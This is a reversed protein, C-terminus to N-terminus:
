TEIVRALSELDTEELVAGTPNNPYNLIVAKTKATIAREITEAQLVFGNEEKCPLLVPKGGALSVLPAYSVYAPEPILVEEGIEVCARLVLDVGESAGVTLLIRNPEYDLSFRESLYRAILDLLTPLGRNGTYQTYGREVANIAAQRVRWPTIFDPEGVGLSIAGETERVIDFFKRIGSPRINKATGNVFNRM